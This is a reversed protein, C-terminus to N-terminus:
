GDPMTGNCVAANSISKHKCATRVGPLAGPGSGSATAPPGANLMLPLSSVLIHTRSAHISVHVTQM